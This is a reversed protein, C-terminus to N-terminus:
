LEANQAMLTKMKPLTALNMRGRITVLHGLEELDLMPVQLILLKSIESVKESKLYFKLSHALLKVTIKM